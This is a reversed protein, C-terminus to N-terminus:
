RDSVDSRCAYRRNYLLPLHLTPVAYFYVLTPPPNLVRIRSCLVLDYLCHCAGGRQVILSRCYSYSGLRSSVTTLAFLSRAASASLSLFSPSCSWLIVSVSRFLFLWLWLWLGRVCVVVM